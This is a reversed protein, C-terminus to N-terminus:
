IGHFPNPDKRCSAVCGSEICRDVTSEKRCVLEFDLEVPKDLAKVTEEVGPNRMNMQIRQKLSYRFQIRRLAARENPGRSVINVRFLAGFKVENGPAELFEVDVTQNCNAAIARQVAQLGQ